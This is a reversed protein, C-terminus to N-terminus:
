VIMISLVYICYISFFVYIILMNVLECRIEVNKFCKETCKHLKALLDM